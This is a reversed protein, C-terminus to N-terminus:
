GVNSAVARAMRAPNMATEPSTSRGSAARAITPASRWAPTRSPKGVQGVTRSACRARDRDPGVGDRKAVGTGLSRRETVDRELEAFALAQQDDAWRPGALAREGQREGPENRAVDGALPM